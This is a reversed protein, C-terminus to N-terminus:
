GGHRRPPNCTNSAGSDGCLDIGLYILVDAGEEAEGKGLGAGTDDRM